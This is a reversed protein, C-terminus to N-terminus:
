KGVKLLELEFILDAKKPFPGGGAEGYGLYYPIFLRAKGGVRMKMIGEKVGPILPQKDLTFKFPTGEKTSQILKGDALYMSYTISTEVSSKFRKGRGRKLTLIQLGSEQKKAKKVGM